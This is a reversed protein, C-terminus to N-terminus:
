MCSAVTCNKPTIGWEQSFRRRRRWEAMQIHEGSEVASRVELVILPASAALFAFESLHYTISLLNYKRCFAFIWFLMNIYKKLRIKRNISGVLLRLTVHGDTGLGCDSWGWESCHTCLKVSAAPLMSPASDERRRECCGGVFHLIPVWHMGLMRGWGWIIFIM